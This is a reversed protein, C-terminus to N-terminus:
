LTDTLFSLLSPGIIISSSGGMLCALKDGGGGCVVWPKVEVKIVKPKVEKWLAPVEKDVADYEVPIERIELNVEEALSTNPLEQFSPFVVSKCVMICLM